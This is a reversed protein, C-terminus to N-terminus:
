TVLVVVRGLDRMGRAPAPAGAVGVLAGRPRGAARRHPQALGERALAHSALGGGAAAAGRPAVFRDRRCAGAAPRGALAARVRAAAPRAARRVADAAPAVPVRR